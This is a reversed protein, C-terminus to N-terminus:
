VKFRLGLAPKVKQQMRADMLPLVDSGDCCSYFLIVGFISVLFLLIFTWVLFPIIWGDGHSRELIRNVMVIGFIILVVVIVFKLIGFVTKRKNVHRRDPMEYESKMIENLEESLATMKNQVETEKEKWFARGFRLGYSIDQFQPATTWDTFFGFVTRWEQTAGRALPEIEKLPEEMEM